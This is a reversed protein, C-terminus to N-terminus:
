ANPKGKYKDHTAGSAWGAGMGVAISLDMPLPTNLGMLIGAVLGLLALVPPISEPPMLSDPLAKLIQGITRNPFSLLAILGGSIVGRMGENELLGTLTNWFEANM